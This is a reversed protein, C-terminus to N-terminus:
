INRKERLIIGELDDRGKKGRWDYIYTAMKKNDKVKHAIFSM